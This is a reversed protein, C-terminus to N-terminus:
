FVAGKFVAGKKGIIFSINSLKAKIATTKSTQFPKILQFAILFLWFIWLKFLKKTNIEIQFKQFIQNKYNQKFHKQLFFKIM